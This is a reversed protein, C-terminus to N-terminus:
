AAQALGRRVYIAELDPWRALLAEVCAPDFHAGAEEVLLKRVHDLPWPEKYPRESLLADCVDAVATIRGTLPIAAGAIRNPYGTGDWREHHSIAIEAALQVLPSSSGDLIEFGSRAHEEMRLREEPDLRGPKHLIADPIAIKGVDHMPSARCLDDIFAPALGLETAIIRSIEAVRVVHQGTQDDRMEGARSLREVVEKERALLRDIGDRIEAMLSNFRGALVGTEDDSLVPAPTAYDRTREADRMAETLRRIPRTISRQLRLSFVLGVGLAVVSGALATLMVGLFQDALGSTDGIVEIEGVPTGGDIVPVRLTLTRSSLLALPSIADSAGRVPDSELRGGAGMQALSSGDRGRVNVYVLGPVRAVARIAQTVAPGDGSAVAKSSASAFVQATALMVDRKADLFRRAESWCSLAAGVILGVGVSVLVLRNLKSAITRRVPQGGAPGASGDRDQVSSTSHSHPRPAM